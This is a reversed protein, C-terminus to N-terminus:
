KHHIETLPYDAWFHERTLGYRQMKRWLTARSIGLLEATRGLHGAAQRGARMIAASESLAQREALRPEPLPALPAAQGAIQVPLDAPGLVSKETVHLLRELILELERVNGPWSYARLAQLAAPALAVQKGMRESLLQVLHNILLLLDDGRERLPPIEVRYACLRAMLDARFRGDAVLRELDAESTAIVRIDIPVVRSGNSRIIHHMEIVRLLSTQLDFPLTDVAELFLVGSHALEIKGPRGQGDNGDGEVGFLEGALLARPVAGCNLQIFPGEARGSANHIAQALISKGVGREGCLLVCASSNAALHAQHLAQVMAPSQGIIDHFTFQAQAGVVRQVLQQVSQPPRLTILAGLYRRGRDWAPRLSSVAVAAGKRGEWTLESAYLEQRQHLALRIAVPLAVLSELPRGAATRISIGLMQAARSNIRRIAGRPNVFILGENITELVTYLEVLRDNAEVLGQEVRIQNHLAQTAAIVLGLTHPHALDARTFIALAGLEQGSVDFLPAAAIALRHLHQCYHEAGCTQVPQTERLALDAANTGATEEALSAGATLHSTQLEALVAPDGQIELLLGHQDILAVAFGPQTILQYLDEIASRVQDAFARQESTLQRRQQPRLEAPDLGLAACRQWSRLVPPAPQEDSIPLPAQATRWAQWVAVPISQLSQLAMDKLISHFLWRPSTM